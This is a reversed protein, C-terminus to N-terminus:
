REGAAFLNDDVVQGKPVVVKDGTMVELASSSISLLLVSVLILGFIKKFM